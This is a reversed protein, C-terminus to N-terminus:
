LLRTKMGSLSVAVTQNSFLSDGIEDNLAVLGVGWMDLTLPNKIFNIDAFVSSTAFASNVSKWQSRHILGVRFDEKIKGTLAPNLTLPSAQYQSFHIDQAFACTSFMLVFLASYIKRM